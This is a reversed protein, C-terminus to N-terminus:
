RLSGTRKILGKNIGRPIPVFKLGKSLLSIESNTSNRRSLNVVNPSVFKGKLRENVLTASYTENFDHNSSHGSYDQQSM